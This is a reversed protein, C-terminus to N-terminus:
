SPIAQASAEAQANQYALYAADRAAKLEPDKRRAAMEAEFMAPTENPQTQPRRIIRARNRQYKQEAAQWEKHLKDITAARM